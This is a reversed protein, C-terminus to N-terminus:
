PVPHWPNAVCDRLVREFHRPDKPTLLAADRPAHWDALRSLWFRLAAARRMAPLLRWEAGTPERESRYGAILAEARTPDLHGTDDDICWDNLTVALDYAFSDVGAFYFDFVGCLRERGPLGDFLANDRFLDAHVAGRPLQAYTASAALHQQFGLEADLLAAADPGLHPRVAPATALWWDLGRLNPQALPFDAVARHMRALTAGVQDAHHVDPAEAPAGPLRNVVAAPKGAVAHCLAGVADARPEPVPLGHRALHQMLLLYFPLQEASLREFLTLVWEGSDTGLFYNTNEIGSGIPELTRVAGLALQTALHQAQAPSVETYVAM